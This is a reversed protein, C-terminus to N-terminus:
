TCFLRRNGSVVSGGGGELGNLTILADCDIRKTEAVLLSDLLRQAVAAYCVVISPLLLLLDTTTTITTAVATAIVIMLHILSSCCLLTHLLLKFPNTQVNTGAIGLAGAACVCM